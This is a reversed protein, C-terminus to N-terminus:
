DVIRAQERVPYQVTVQSRRLALISGSAFGPLPHGGVGESVNGPALSFSPSTAM